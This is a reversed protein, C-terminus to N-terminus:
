QQSQARQDFVKITYGGVPKKEKNLYIWDDVDAIQIHLDQGMKLNTVTAPENDLRGHIKTEDISDVSLWLYETHDGESIRGKVAFETGAKERFAHMFEHWGKKAQEQAALLQPDDDRISVVDSGGGSNAFAQLPDDSCLTKGVAESYLVFDDIEPHYIALADNGALAAAIKGMDQYSQQIDEPETASAWDISVWAHHAAVVKRLEPEKIEDLAKNSNEVYPKAINNIVYSGSKLKVLFHPPKAVVFSGKSEDHSHKVGVAKSVLAGLTHEDLERPEHLLVVLSLLREQPAITAPKNVQLKDDALAAASFLTLCLAAAALHLSGTLVLRCFSPNM